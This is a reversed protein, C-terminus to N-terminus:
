MRGLKCNSKREGVILSEIVDDACAQDAHLRKGVDNLKIQGIGSRLM